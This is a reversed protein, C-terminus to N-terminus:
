NRLLKEEGTVPENMSDRRVRDRSRSAVQTQPRQSAQLPEKRLAAIVMQVWLDGTEFPVDEMDMTIACRQLAQMLRLADTVSAPGHSREEFEKMYGASDTKEVNETTTGRLEQAQTTCKSRNIFM